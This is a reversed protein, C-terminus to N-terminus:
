TPCMHAAETCLEQESKNHHARAACTKTQLLLSCSGALAKEHPCMGLARLMHVPASRLVVSQDQM